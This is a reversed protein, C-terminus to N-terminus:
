QIFVIHKWDTDQNNLYQRLEHDLRKQAHQCLIWVCDVNVCALRAKALIEIADVLAQAYDSM